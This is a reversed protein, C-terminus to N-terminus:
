FGPDDGTPSAPKKANAEGVAGTTYPNSHAVSPLDSTKMKKAPQATVAPAPTGGSEANEAGNDPSEAAAPAPSLTPAAPVTPRAFARPARREVSLSDIDVIETSTAPEPLAAQLATNPAAPGPMAQASSLQTPSLSLPQRRIKLARVVFAGSGSAAVCIFLAIGLTGWRPRQARWPFQFVSSAEPASPPPM